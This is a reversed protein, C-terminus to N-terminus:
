LYKVAIFNILLHITNDSIINLWVTIWIPREGTFGDETHSRNVLRRLFEAAYLHDIIAHTIFIVSLALVSKTIFLFLLTYVFAHQAALLFHKKKNLAQYDTQLIYDGILHAILQEM